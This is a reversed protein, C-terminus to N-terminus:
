FNNRFQYERMQPLYHRLLIAAWRRKRRPSIGHPTSTLLYFALRMNWNKDPFNDSASTQTREHTGPFIYRCRNKLRGNLAFGFTRELSIQRFIRALKHHKWPMQSNAKECKYFVASKILLVDFHRFNMTLNTFMKWNEKLFGAFFYQIYICKKFITLTRKELLLM